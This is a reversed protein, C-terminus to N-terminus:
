VLASGASYNLKIIKSGKGGENFQRERYHTHPSRREERFVFETDL